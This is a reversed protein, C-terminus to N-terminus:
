KTTQFRPMEEKIMAMGGLDSLLHPRTGAISTLGLYRPIINRRLIRLRDYILAENDFL